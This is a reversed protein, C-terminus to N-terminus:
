NEEEHLLKFRHEWVDLETLKEQLEQRLLDGVTMDFKKALARLMKMDETDIELELTM